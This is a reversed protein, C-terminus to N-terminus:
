EELDSHNYISEKDLEFLTLNREIAHHRKIAEKRRKESETVYGKLGHGLEEKEDDSWGSGFKDLAKESHKLVFDFREDLYWLPKAGLAGNCVSCVPVLLFKVGIKKLSKSGHEAVDKLPPIHDYANRPSSCYFCKSLDTNPLRKYLDGFITLALKRNKSM